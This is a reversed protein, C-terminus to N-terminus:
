LNIGLAGLPNIVDNLFNGFTNSSSGGGSGTNIIGPLGSFVGGAGTNISPLGQLVPGFIGGTSGQNQTSPVAGSVGNVVGSIMQGLTENPNSTSSQNTNQPVVPSPAAPNPGQGAAAIPPVFGM